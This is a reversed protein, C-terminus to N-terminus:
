VKPNSAIADNVARHFAGVAREYKPSLVGTQYVGAALNRYVAECVQRDELVIRESSAVSENNGFAAGASVDSFFYDLTVLCQDVGIPSYREVSMGTPYLNLALNPYRWLWRGTTPAGDRPPASHVVYPGCDNVSVSYVKADVARNLTPHVLPIHYGELYNDAYIKWNCRVLHESRHWFEYTEIPYSTCEDTFPGLWEAVPGISSSRTAFRVGRWTEVRAGPVLAEAPAGASEYGVVVWSAGFVLEQELLLRDTQHYQQAAMAELVTDFATMGAPTM